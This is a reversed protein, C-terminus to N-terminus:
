WEPTQSLETVVERSGDYGSYQHGGDGLKELLLQLSIVIPM